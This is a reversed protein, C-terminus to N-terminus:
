GVRFACRRNYDKVSDGLQAGSQGIPTELSIPDRDISPRACRSHRPPWRTAIEETSPERGLELRLAAQLRPSTKTTSSTCRSASRAPRTQSPRPSPRFEDGGLRAVLDEDRFATSLAEAAATILTDGATHGLHDNVKKSLTRCGCLSAAGALRPAPGAPMEDVMAFFGRRNLLGTLEDQHSM